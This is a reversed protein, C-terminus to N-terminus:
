HCRHAFLKTILASPPRNPASLGYERKLRRVRRAATRVGRLRLRAWVKRYGEGHFPATEIVARIEALLDAPLSRQHYITSRAVQWV